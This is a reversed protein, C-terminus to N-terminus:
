ELYYICTRTDNLCSDVRLMEKISIEDSGSDDISVFEPNTPGLFDIGAEDLANRIASV